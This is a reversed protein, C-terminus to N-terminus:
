RESCSTGHYLITGVEHFTNKDHRAVLNSKYPVPNCMITYRMTKTPTICTNIYLIQITRMVTNTLNIQELLLKTSTEEQKVYQRLM